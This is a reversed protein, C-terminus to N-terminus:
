EVEGVSLTVLMLLMAAIRAFRPHVSQRDLTPRGETNVRAFRSLKQAFQLPPYLGGVECSKQNFNRNKM